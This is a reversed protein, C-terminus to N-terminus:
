GCPDCDLGPERIACHRVRHALQEDVLKVREDLRALAARTRRGAFVGSLEPDGVMPRGGIIVMLVDARAAALLADFPDESRSPLVLLDAPLGPMIRGADVLRLARAANPGVMRALDRPTAEAEELACRMEDLLDRSGTLRSDTGLSIPPAANASADMFRRIPPSHGLLFRNSAPCWVLSAGRAIIRAWDYDDLGVGHVVVTNDGLCGMEDLRRLEQRAADDTGEALHLLFPCDPPTGQYRRAVDGAPEGNAGARGDQLFLSHAWGYRRVVRVPFWFRLEAYFPNHHAVTTVGSLLNKLGGIFLRDALPHARSARIPRDHEIRPRMEEIWESANRYLTRSKLQGYHNLELHDHANILGPFVTAGDLDVVTDTPQPPTDIDLVRSAFRVSRAVGAETVVRANIFCVPRSLM